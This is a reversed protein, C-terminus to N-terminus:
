RMWSPVEGIVGGVEENALMSWSRMENLYIDDLPGPHEKKYKKQIEQATQTPRFKGKPRATIKAIDEETLESM